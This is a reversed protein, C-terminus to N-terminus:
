TIISNVICAILELPICIYDSVEVNRSCVNECYISVAYTSSPVKSSEGTESTVCKLNGVIVSAYCSNLSLATIHPFLSINEKNDSEHDSRIM